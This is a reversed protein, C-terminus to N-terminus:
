LHVPGERPTPPVMKKGAVEEEEEVEAAQRDAVVAATELHRQARPYQLLSDRQSPRLFATCLDRTPYSRTGRSVVIAWTLRHLCIKSIGRGNLKYTWRWRM